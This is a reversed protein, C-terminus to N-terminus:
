GTGMAKLTGDLIERIQRWRRSLLEREAELDTMSQLEDLVEEVRVLYEEILEGLLEDPSQSAGRALSKLATQLKPGALASTLTSGDKKGKEGLDSVSSAPRLVMGGEMEGRQSEELRPLVVDDLCVEDCRNHELIFGYESLLYDNSHDGYSINVEQGAGYDDIAVVEYGKASFSVKCGPEAAHNFLDAVPLQALRDAWPYAATRTTEFYFTRSNVLLWAYSYYEKAIRPYGGSFAAWDRAFNRGQKRLRTRVAAPLLRQLKPPWLLPVSTKIDRRTPLVANWAPFPPRGSAMGVALEAALLGQISM